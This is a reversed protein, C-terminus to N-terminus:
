RLYWVAGSGNLRQLMIPTDPDTNDYAILTGYGTLWPGRFGAYAGYLVEPRNMAMAVTCWGGYDFDIRNGGVSEDM